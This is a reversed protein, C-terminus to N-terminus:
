KVKYSVLTQLKKSNESSGSEKALESSIEQSFQTQLVSHLSPGFALSKGEMSAPSAFVSTKLSSSTSSAAVSSLSSSEKRVAFIQSITPLFLWSLLVFFLVFLFLLPLVQPIFGILDLAPM